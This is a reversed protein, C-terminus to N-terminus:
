EPTDDRVAVNARKLVDPVAVEQGSCFRSILYNYNRKRLRLGHRQVPPM